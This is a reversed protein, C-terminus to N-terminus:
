SDSEYSHCLCTIKSWCIAGKGFSTDLDVDDKATYRARISMEKGLTDVRGNLCQKLDFYEMAILVFKSPM